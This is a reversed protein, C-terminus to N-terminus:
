SSVFPKLNTKTKVSNNYLVLRYLHGLRHKKIKNQARHSCLKNETVAVNLFIIKDALIQSYLPFFAFISNFVAFHEHEWASSLYFLLIAELKGEFLSSTSISSPLSAAMM